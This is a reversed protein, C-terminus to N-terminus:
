DNNEAKRKEEVNKRTTRLRYSLERCRGAIERLHEADPANPNGALQAGLRARRTKLATVLLDVDEDLLEMTITEQQGCKTCNYWEIDHICLADMLNADTM